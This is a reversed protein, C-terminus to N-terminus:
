LKRARAAEGGVRPPQPGLKGPPQPHPFPRPDSVGSSFTRTAKKAEGTEKAVHHYYDQVPM